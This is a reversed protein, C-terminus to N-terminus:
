SYDKEWDEYSTNTTYGGYVFYCYEVDDYHWQSEPLSMQANEIAGLFAHWMPSYVNREAERDLARVLRIIENEPETPM